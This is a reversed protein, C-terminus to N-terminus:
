AYKRLRAKFDDVGNFLRVTSAILQRSFAETVSAKENNCELDTNSSHLLLKVAATHTIQM